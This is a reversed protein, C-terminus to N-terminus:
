RDEESLEPGYECRPGAAEWAVITCDMINGRAQKFAKIEIENYDHILKNHDHHINWLM